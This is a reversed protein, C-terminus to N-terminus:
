SWNYYKIDCFWWSSVWEGWGRSPLWGLGFSGELTALETRTLSWRFTCYGERMRGQGSISHCHERSRFLRGYLHLIRYPKHCWKGWPLWAMCVAPSLPSFTHTSGEFFISSCTSCNLGPSRCGSSFSAPLLGSQLDLIQPCRATWCISCGSHAPFFKNNNM